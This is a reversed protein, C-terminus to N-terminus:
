KSQKSHVAIAGVGAKVKTGVEILPVAVRLANRLKWLKWGVLGVRLDSRSPWCGVPGVADENSRVSKWGNPSVSGANVVSLLCSRCM